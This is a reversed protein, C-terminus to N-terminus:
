PIPRCEVVFIDSISSCNSPQVFGVLMRRSWFCTWKSTITLLSLQNTAALREYRRQKKIRRHRSKRNYQLLIWCANSQESQLLLFFSLPIVFVFLYFTQPISLVLPHFFDSPHVFDLIFFVLAYLFILYSLILFIL